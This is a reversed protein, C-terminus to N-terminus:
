ITNAESVSAAGMDMEVDTDCEPCYPHGVEILDTVPVMMKHGCDPCEFEISVKETPVRM